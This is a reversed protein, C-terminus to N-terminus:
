LTGELWCLAPGDYDGVDHGLRPDRYQRPQSDWGSFAPRDDWREAGRCTTWLRQITVFAAPKLISSLPWNWRWRPSTRRGCNAALRNAAGLARTGQVGLDSHIRALIM